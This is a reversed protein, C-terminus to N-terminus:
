KRKQIEVVQAPFVIQSLLFTKALVMRGNLSLQRKGWGLVISEMVQIRSIINEQYETEPSEALWIGCTRIKDKRGLQHAAPEDKDNRISGTSWSTMWIM